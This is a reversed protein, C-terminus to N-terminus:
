IVIPQCIFQFDLYNLTVVCEVHITIMVIVLLDEQTHILRHSLPDHM